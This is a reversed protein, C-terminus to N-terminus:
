CMQVKNTGQMAFRTRLLDFPYTITTAFSGALMGSLFSRAESSM